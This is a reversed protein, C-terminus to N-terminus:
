RRITVDAAHCSLRAHPSTRAPRPAVLDAEIWGYSDSIRILDIRNRAGTKTIARSLYNRVTGVALCLNRAIEETSAGRAALRLAELERHTLPNERPSLAAFALEPDIVKSGNSVRRIADTLFERTTDRIIFGCAHAAAARRLDGANRRASMIVCRCSPVAVHMAAAASFGDQGPLDAAIVAVDPLLAQSVPVVREGHQVEALVEFDEEGAIVAVLGARILATPEAIVTRIM